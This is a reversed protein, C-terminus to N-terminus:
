SVTTAYNSPTRRAGNCIKSHFKLKKISQNLFCLLLNACEPLFFILFLYSIFIYFFILQCYLISMLKKNKRPKLGEGNISKHQGEFVDDVSHWNFPAFLRV